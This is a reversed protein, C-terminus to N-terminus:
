NGNISNLMSEINSIYRKKHWNGFSPHPTGKLLEWKANEIDAAEVFTEATKGCPIITINRDKLKDLETKFDELIIAQLENRKEDKYTLRTGTRLKELIDFFESYKEANFEGYLKTVEENLYATRQMPIPCINMVGNKGSGEKNEEFERKLIIGLAETKEGNYIVKSMAKGSLGSVPAGNILEDIHPSELVFVRETNEKILHKVKYMEKLENYLNKM